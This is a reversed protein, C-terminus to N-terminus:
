ETSTFKRTYQRVSRSSFLHWAGVGVVAGLFDAILDALESSRGPVLAQHIEDSLGWLASVFVAFAATRWASASPWSRSAAGGCLWGLVGFEIFHIAKDRLPLHHIGPVRVEFSSVVFILAM